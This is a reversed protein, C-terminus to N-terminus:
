SAEGMCMRYEAQRRVTLGRLPKGKFRDWKLIERCAGVYDGANLKKALTSKCFAHPGINYALSVFADYEYQHLPVKVCQKLAGEYKQVDQLAREIAKPPTIKEGAKVPSGDVHTTTGYGYTPVDGVVPPKAVPEFGEFGLIGVLGAASLALATAITRVKTMM